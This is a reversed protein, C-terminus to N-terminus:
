AFHGYVEQAIFKQFGLLFQELKGVKVKAGGIEQVVQGFKFIKSSSKRILEQFAQAPKSNRLLTTYTSKYARLVYLTGALVSLKRM